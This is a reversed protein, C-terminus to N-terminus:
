LMKRLVPFRNRGLAAFVGPMGWKVPKAEATAPPQLRERGQVM